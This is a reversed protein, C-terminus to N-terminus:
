HVWRACCCCCAIRCWAFRSTRGQYFDRPATPVGFNPTYVIPLVGAICVVIGWFVPIYSAQEKFPGTMRVMAMGVTIAILNGTSKVLSRASM